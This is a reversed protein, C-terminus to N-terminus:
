KRGPSKWMTLLAVSRRRVLAIFHYTFGGLKASGALRPTGDRSMPPVGQVLVARNFLDRFLALDEATVQRQGRSEEARALGHSSLAHRVGDHDLALLKGEVDVGLAAAKKVALSSVPGLMLAPQKEGPSAMVRRVHSAAVAHAVVEQGLELGARRAAAALPPPLAALKDQVLRSLSAARARGVNYGFGPDIGVPVREVVGSRQNVWERTGLDLAQKRMPQGTPTTGREYDRQSVAVVRCRCRWGNPPFHTHWFGDDVPLTVNDWAQHAPRVRGDRATVYRLYPHSRKSRQLREWQGAAYASRVNTDLILKLRAPDFRTTVMRGTLPDLVEKEGWWGAEALLAKADRGFDRRGMNGAVTASIMRQVDALLDARALRSITFQTAHEEQWLDQWSYTQTLESRGALYRVAAEPTLKHLAAFAQADSM